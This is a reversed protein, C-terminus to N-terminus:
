LTYNVKSLKFYCTRAGKFLRIKIIKELLILAFFLYLLFISVMHRWNLCLPQPVHTTLQWPHPPRFCIISQYNQLTNTVSVSFVSYKFFSWCACQRIICSWVTRTANELTLTFSAGPQEIFVEFFNPDRTEYKFRFDQSLFVFFNLTLSFFVVMWTLHFYRCQQGNWTGVCNASHKRSLCPSYLQRHSPVFPRWVHPVTRECHNTNFPAATVFHIAALYM